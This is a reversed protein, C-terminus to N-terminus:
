PHTEQKTEKEQGRYDEEKAKSLSASRFPKYSAGSRDRIRPCGRWTASHNETWDRRAVTARAVTPPAGLTDGGGLFVEQQRAGSGDRQASPQFLLVFVARPSGRQVLFGPTSGAGSGCVDSPIVPGELGTYITEKRM